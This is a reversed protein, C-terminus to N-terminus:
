HSFWFCLLSYLRLTKVGMADALTFSSFAYPCFKHIIPEHDLVVVNKAIWVQM